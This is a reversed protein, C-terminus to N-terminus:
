EGDAAVLMKYGAVVEGRPAKNGDAEAILTGITNVVNLTEVPFGVGAVDENLARGGDLEVPSEDLLLM